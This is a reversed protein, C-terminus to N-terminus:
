KVSVAASSRTAGIGPASHKVRTRTLSFEGLYRGLMEETITVATFTKGTHVLLTVGVMQPLIIMNRCHTKIPKNSKEQQAKEINKLLKKQQETLGRKLSRRARANAIQMFENISLKKLEELTKGHYTFQKAM